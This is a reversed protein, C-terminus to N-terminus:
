EELLKDFPEVIVWEGAKVNSRESELIIFCNAKTLSGYFYSDQTGTSYVQMENKNNKVLYGRQFEIVGPSKKLNTAVRVKYKHKFISCYTKGQCKSIFHQALQYFTVVASVPNGPLGIFWSTNLRAFTFPKGPKMAVKCFIVEGLERLIMRVFDTKGVSIGGTTIVIDSLRDAQKIAYSIDSINDRIIGLDIVECGLRNLMLSITFRNIDYLENHFDIKKSINKLEDGTSFIAVRLKRLVKLKFIGLSAILPLHKIDLKVGSNIVVDGIKINEGTLRINQGLTISNNVVINSDSIKTDEQKVVAECSQPIKAGTMIRITSGLAWSGAFPKGALSDGSIKLIHNTKIDDFRIAYGDMAASDFSPLNVPSILSEATIYGLADIIPIHIYDKIPKAQLLMINRANQFSTLKGLSINM